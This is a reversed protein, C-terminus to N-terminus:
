SFHKLMLSDVLSLCSTVQAEKVNQWDAHLSDNRFKLFSLTVTPEGGQLVGQDKLQAIVEELKIRATIGAKEAAIRRMLDEFAAAALVAAVHIAKEDLAERSLAVLDALVEGAIKLRLSDVLGAKIESVMNQIAGAAFEYVRVQPNTEPKQKALAEVGLTITAVQKSSAGYLTSAMSIAFATAEGSKFGAAHFGVTKLEFDKARELWADQNLM